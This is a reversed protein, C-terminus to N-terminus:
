EEGKPLLLPRNGPKTTQYAKRFTALDVGARRALEALEADLDEQVGDKNPKFHVKKGNPLILGHHEGIAARLHNGWLAEAEKGRKGVAKAAKLKRYARLIAAQDAEALKSVEIYDSFRPKRSALFRTWEDSGDVPPPVDALVYREMFVTAAERAGAIIEEDRETRFIGQERGGFLVALDAVQTETVDMQVHLQVIYRGPMEDTLDEGWQDDRFGINKADVPRRDGLSWRADLSAGLYRCAPSVYFDFEDVFDIPAGVRESYGILIPGQLRKGWEMWEPTEGEEVANKAHLWAAMPSGYAGPLGMVAPLLTSPIVGRRRERWELERRKREVDLSVVSM